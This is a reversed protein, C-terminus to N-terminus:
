VIKEKSNNSGDPALKDYFFLSTSANVHLVDKNHPMREVTKKIRDTIYFTFSFLVPPIHLPHITM